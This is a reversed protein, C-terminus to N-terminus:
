FNNQLRTLIKVASAQMNELPVANELNTIQNVQSSIQDATLEQKADFVTGQGEVIAVRSVYGGGVAWCEGNVACEESCFYAVIPSVWKPEFLEIIDPPMISETMRSKAVPAIANIKINHKQGEEKLCQMLGLVGMKAAGYNSQGFNGYLGTSSTTMVIRGYNQTLFHEWAAKTVNRSGTLHVNLIDEWQSSEQKKFSKDNLIGANNIVIDLKGFESIACDVMALAGEMSEVSSYNAIAQGGNNRILDVTQDAASKSKGQGEVSGGKDNIVIKAGLKALLLAHSRGLSGGGGTILAVKDKFNITM